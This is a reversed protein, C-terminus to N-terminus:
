YGSYTDHRPQPVPGRTASIGIAAPFTSLHVPNQTLDEPLRYPVPKVHEILQRAASIVPRQQRDRTTFQRSQDVPPPSQKGSVRRIRPAATWLARAPPTGSRRRAAHPPGGVLMEDRVSRWLNARRRPRPPGRKGDGRSDLAVSLANDLEMSSATEDDKHAEGWGHPSSCGGLPRHDPSRGHGRGRHRLIVPWM